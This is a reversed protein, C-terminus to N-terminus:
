QYIYKNVAVKGTSLTETEVSVRNSGDVAYVFDSIISSGSSYAEVKKLPLNNYMKVAYPTISPVSAAVSSYTTTFVRNVTGSPTIDKEETVNGSADYTYFM